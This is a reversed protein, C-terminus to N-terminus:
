QAKKDIMKMTEDSVPLVVARGFGLAQKLKAIREARRKAAAKVDYYPRKPETTM